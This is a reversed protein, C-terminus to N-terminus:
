AVAPCLPPARERCLTPWFIWESCLTLCRGIRWRFYQEPKFHWFPIEWRWEGIESHQEWDKIRTAGLWIHQTPAGNAKKKRIRNLENHEWESHVSALHGGLEVCHQEVFKWNEQPIEETYRPGERIEVTEQWGEEVRTDVELDIVLSGEGLRSAMNKPFELVVHHHRDKLFYSREFSKGFWPTEITGNLTSVLVELGDAVYPKPISVFGQALLEVNEPNVSAVMRAVFDEHATALIATFAEEKLSEREQDTFSSSNDVKLLDHNLAFSAPDPPCVTVTPLVLNEIPHTTITTSVPSAQWDLYSKTILYGAM